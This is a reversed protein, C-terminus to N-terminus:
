SGASRVREVAKGYIREVEEMVGDPPRSDHSGILALARDKAKRAFSPSGAGRYSGLSMRPFIDSAFDQRMNALTAEHMFYNGEAVGSRIAEYAADPREDYDVGRIIHTIFRAIEQDVIFMVPCFVEDLSLQGAGLCFRRMGALALTLMYSTRELVAQADCRKALCNVFHGPKPTRYYFEYVDKLCLQYLIHMPSSYVTVTTKLDFLDLRYQPHCNVREGAVLRVLIYSGLAEAAAQVLGGPLFLPATSGAQPIPAAAATVEVDTRDKYRWITELGAPNTKLPSIPFQVEIHYRRGAAAYMAIIFELTGYDSPELQSGNGETLEIAAKELALIQLGPPVDNPYVPCIHGARAAHILKLMQRVDSLTSPRIQDTEMDVINLCNWPGSITVEDCLPEAQHESRARRVFEEGLEPAFYVRSGDQRVGPHAAAATRWREHSVEIGVNALVRLVQAHIRELEAPGLGGSLRFRLRKPM